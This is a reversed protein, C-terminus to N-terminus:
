LYIVSRLMQFGFLIEFVIVPYIVLRELLPYWVSVNEGKIIFFLAASFSSLVGLLILLVRYDALVNLTTASLVIFSGVSAFVLITGILHYPKNTGGHFLGVLIVGISIMMAFLVCIYKYIGEIRPFVLYTYSISFIIGTSIFASNMLKYLPSFDSKKSYYSDGIPVGLESITHTLYASVSAKSAVITILEAVLYYFGIFVLIIAM